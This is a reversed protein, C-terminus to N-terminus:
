FVKSTASIGTDYSFLPVLRKLMMLIDSDTDLYAISDM